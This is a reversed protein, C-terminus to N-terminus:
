ATIIPFLRQVIIYLFTIFFPSNNIDTFYNNTNHSKNIIPKWKTQSKMQTFKLIAELYLHFIKAKNTDVLLILKNMKQPSVFFCFYQFLYTKLLMITRVSDCMFIQYNLAMPDARFTHYQARFFFKRPISLMSKISNRVTLSSESSRRQGRM